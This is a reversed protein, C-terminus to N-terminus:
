FLFTVNYKLFLSYKFLKFTSEWETVFENDQMQNNFFFVAFISISETKYLSHNQSEWVNRTEEKSSVVGRLM